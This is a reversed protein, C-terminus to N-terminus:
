ISHLRERLVTKLVKGTNNKPLNEVFFYEKPRKFRGIHQLCLLDLDQKKLVYGTKVVVFACVDEGWEASERGLVAVEIVNPHLLLVEEVERPYINSGGSIIVDKSRDTLVLLGRPTLYGIDGTRLWGHTLTKESAEVNNWYGKMVSPGSVVVEGMMGSTCCRDNVDWVQVDVLSQRMGVSALMEDDGTKIALDVESASMATITMPSEGQGYIQAIRGQLCDVAARMDQLYFPAGGVIVTKLNELPPCVDNAYNVMRKVITPSAFLNIREIREILGFLEAEDFGGSPPIVQLAGKMWMPIAYLGSGHSLPAVHIIADQHDVSVVDAHFCMAMAVLNAHTLMVGKPRGTTGSTYFIWALDEDSVFVSQALNGKAMQDYSESEADILKLGPIRGVVEKFEAMLEGQSVCVKAGSDRLIYDLEIPHLKSNVPVACLGACWIALQLEVYPVSNKMFLVVREGSNNGCTQRLSAALRNVRQDLEGYTYLTHEGLAVAPSDRHAAVTRKFLKNLNMTSESRLLQM